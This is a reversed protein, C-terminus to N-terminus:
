AQVMDLHPASQSTRSISIVGFNLRYYLHRCSIRVLVLQMCGQCVIDHEILPQSHELGFQVAEFLTGRCAQMLWQLALPFRESMDLHSYRDQLEDLMYSRLFNIRYSLDLRCHQESNPVICCSNCSLILELDPCGWSSYDKSM